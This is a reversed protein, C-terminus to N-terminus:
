KKVMRVTMSIDVPAGVSGPVMEGGRLTVVLPPIPSTVLAVNAPDDLDLWWNGSVTCSFSPPGLPVGAGGGCDAIVGAGPVSPQLPIGNVDAWLQLTSPIAPTYVSTTMMADVKVVRKKKAGKLTAVLLAAPAAPRPFAQVSVSRTEKPLKACPATCSDAAHALSATLAVTLAPAAMLVAAFRVASRIRTTM